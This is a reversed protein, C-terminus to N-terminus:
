FFIDGGAVNALLSFRSSVSRDSHELRDRYWNGEDDPNSLMGTMTSLSVLYAMKIGVVTEM